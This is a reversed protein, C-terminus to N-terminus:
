GDDIKFKISMQIESSLATSEFFISATSRKEIPETQILHPIWFWCIYMPINSPTQSQALIHPFQVTPIIIRQLFREMIMSSIVDDVFQYINQYTIM